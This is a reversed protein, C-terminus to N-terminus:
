DEGHRASACGVEVKHALPKIPRLLPDNGRQGLPLPGPQDHTLRLHQGLRALASLLRLPPFSRAQPATM